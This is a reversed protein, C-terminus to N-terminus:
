TGFFLYDIDRARMPRGSTELDQAATIAGRPVARRDDTSATRDIQWYGTAAKEQSISTLCVVLYVEACLHPALGPVPVLSLCQHIIDM